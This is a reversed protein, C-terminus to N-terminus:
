GKTSELKLGLQEQLATFISPGSPDTAFAPHNPDAGFGALAQDFNFQLHVDFTGTLATKDIVPRGLMNTLIRIFETMVVKGGDMRMGATGGGAMITGCPAVFPQGGGGRPPPPPGAPAAPGASTREICSGSKPPQLKAGSKAVVLEYVPLQQTDRRVK